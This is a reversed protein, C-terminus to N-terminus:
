EEGFANELVQAFDYGAHSLTAIGAATDNFYGLVSLITDVDKMDADGDFVDQIAYQAYKAGSLSGGEGALM